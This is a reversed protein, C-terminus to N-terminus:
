DYGWAAIRLNSTPSAAMAGAPVRAEAEALFSWSASRRPDRKEGLGGKRRRPERGAVSVDMAFDM